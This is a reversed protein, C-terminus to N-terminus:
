SGDVTFVALVGSSSFIAGLWALLVRNFSVLSLYYNRGLNRGIVVMSLCSFQYVQSSIM